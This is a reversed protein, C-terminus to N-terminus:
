KIKRMKGKLIDKSYNSSSNQIYSDGTTSIIHVTIAMDSPIDSLIKSTKKTMTLVYTCDDIWKVNFTYYTKEGFVQEKQLDGKRIIIYEVTSDKGIFEFTGNKFKQCDTKQSFSKISVSSLVLIFALQLIKKM